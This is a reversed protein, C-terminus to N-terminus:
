AARTSAEAAIADAIAGFVPSPDGDLMAQTLRFVTWGAAVLANQRVRDDDFVCRDMHPEFGDYELDILSESWAVDLLRPQGDVVVRYNLRPRPLGLRQAIRVVTAEWDSRARRIDPHQSAIAKVVRSAGTRKPNRLELARRHLSQANVVHRLVARDVLAEVARPTLSAAADIIARAPSTARIHDVVIVESPPLARTSHLGERPRNRWARVVLVEPSKPPPLLKYLAVASRGYAVGDVSLTLAMLRQQWTSPASAAARYVGHRLEVWRHAAVNRTIADHSIGCALVQDYRFCGLQRRAIRELEQHKVIGGADPQRPLADLM